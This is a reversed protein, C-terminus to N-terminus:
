ILSLTWKMDKWQRRKEDRKYDDCNRKRRVGERM